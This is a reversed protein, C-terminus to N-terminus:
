INIVNHEYQNVSLAWLICMYDRPVSSTHAYFMDCEDILKIPVGSQVIKKVPRACKVDGSGELVIRKDM